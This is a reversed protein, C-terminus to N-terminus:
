LPDLAAVAPTPYKATAASGIASGYERRLRRLDTTRDIDFSLPLEEWHLGLRRFRKRTAALVGPSSWHMAQFLLPQPRRLGLLVYGGDEAPGLVAQAGCALRDFAQQLLWPPLAACDAGILAAFSARHLTTRLVRQMRQGLDGPPQVRLDIGLEHAREALWPHARGPSVWLEVPAAKAAVAHVLTQRLLKRYIIAAGQRGYTAALRTKVRGPVPAKAFILLRAHPYRVGNRITSNVKM